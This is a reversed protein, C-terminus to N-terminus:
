LFYEQDSTSHPYVMDYTRTDDCDRETSEVTLDLLVVSLTFLYSFLERRGGFGYILSDAM